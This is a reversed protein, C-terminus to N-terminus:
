RAPAVELDVCLGFHDSGKIPVVQTRLPVLGDVFCHDIRILGGMGCSSLNPWTRPPIVGPDACALAADTFRAAMKRYVPWLPSANFDGLIARPMGPARDLFEFLGKMQRHRTDPNPFYPWNQPAMIHVNIIQM